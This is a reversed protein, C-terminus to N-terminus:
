FDEAIEEPSPIDEDTDEIVKEKKAKAPKAPKAPKPQEVEAKKEIVKGNCFFVRHDYITVKGEEALKKVTLELYPTLEYCVCPRFAKGGIKIMNKVSFFM